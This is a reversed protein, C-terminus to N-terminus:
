GGSAGGGRGGWERGAPPVGALGEVLQRAGVVVVDVRYLRARLAVAFAYVGVLPGDPGEVLFLKSSWLRIM